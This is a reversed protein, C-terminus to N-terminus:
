PPSQSRSRSRSWRQNLNLNMKQSRMRRPNRAVVQARNREGSDPKSSKGFLFKLVIPILGLTITGACLLPNDEIFNTFTGWAYKVKGMFSDEYSADLMKKKKEGM